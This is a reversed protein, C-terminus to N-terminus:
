RVQLAQAAANADRIPQERIHRDIDASTSIM